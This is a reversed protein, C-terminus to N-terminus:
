SLQLFQARRSRGNVYGGCVRSYVVRHPCRTAFWDVVVQAARTGQVDVTFVIATPDSEWSYEPEYAESRIMKQYECWEAATETFVDVTTSFHEDQLCWFDNEQEAKEIHERGEPTLFLHSITRIIINGDDGSPFGEEDLEFGSVCVQIQWWMSEETDTLLPKFYDANCQPLESARWLHNTTIMMNTGPLTWTDSSGCKSTKCVWGGAELEEPTINPAFPVFHRPTSDTTTNDTDTTDM